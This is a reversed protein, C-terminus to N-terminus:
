RARSPFKQLRLAPARRLTPSRFTLLPARPRRPQRRGPATRVRAGLASQHLKAPAVEVGAGGWTPPQSAASGGPGGKSRRGTGRAALVAAGSGAGSGARSPGIRAGSDPHRRECSRRSLTRRQPSRACWGRAVGTTQGRPSDKGWIKQKGGEQGPVRSGLSLPWIKSPSFSTWPVRVTKPNTPFHLPQSNRERDALPRVLTLTKVSLQPCPFAAEDFTM